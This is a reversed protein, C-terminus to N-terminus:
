HHSHIGLIPHSEAAFRNRARFNARFKFEFLKQDSDLACAARRQIVDGIVKKLRWRNSEVRWLKVLMNMLLMLLLM